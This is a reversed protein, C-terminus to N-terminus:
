KITEKILNLATTGSYSQSAPSTTNGGTYSNTAVWAYTTGSTLTSDWDIYQWTTSQTDLNTTLGTSMALAKWNADGPTYTPCSTASTCQTRYVQITCPSATRCNSNTWNLTANHVGDPTLVTIQSSDSTNASNNASSITVAYAYLTSVTLPTSDISVFHTNAPTVSQTTTVAIQAFASPNTGYNPCNSKNNGSCVARYVNSTCTNGTICSHNDYELTINFRGIPTTTGSSITLAGSINSKSSATFPTYQAYNVTLFYQWITGASLASESNIISFHTGGKGNDYSTYSGPPSQVYPSGQVPAPCTSATPCSSRWLQVWCECSSLGCTNQGCGAADAEITISGVSVAQVPTTIVPAPPVTQALVSFPLFLFWFKM